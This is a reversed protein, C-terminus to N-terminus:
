ALKLYYQRKKEPLKEIAYRLATRPMTAAHAALFGELVKPERNGAERMMWGVAKHILDHEHHVLIEAIRIADDFEHNKIFHLTSIMAIRQKWLHKTKALKDLVNRDRNELHPGIIWHASSDVLDWNNIRDMKQFYLKYIKQKQKEDGRKYQDVMILVGTLRHEHIADDLLKIIETEPLDRFMKAVARQHPVTVGVFKDGEGYEGPGTKFFRPFFAAKEPNAHKKLERAVAAKSVSAPTKNAKQIVKKGVKKKPM